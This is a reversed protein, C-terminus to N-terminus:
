FIKVQLISSVEATEVNEFAEQFAYKIVERAEEKQIVLMVVLRGEELEITAKDGDKIVKLFILDELLQRIKRIKTM